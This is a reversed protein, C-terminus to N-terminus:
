HPSVTDKRAKHKRNKLQNMSCVMLEVDLAPCFGPARHMINPLLYTKGTETGVDSSCPGEMSLTKLTILIAVMVPIEHFHM